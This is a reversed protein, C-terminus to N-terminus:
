KERKRYVRYPIIEQCSERLFSFTAERQEQAERTHPGSFDTEQPFTVIFLGEKRLAGILKRTIALPELTHELCDLSAIVAYHENEFHESGDVTIIRHLLSLMSQRVFTLVTSGIEALDVESYGKRALYHVLVGAGGGYDLIPADFPLSENQIMHYTKLIKKKYEFNRSSLYAQRWMDGDHESYFSEVGEASNRSHKAWLESFGIRSVYYRVLFEMESDLQYYKKVLPVISMAPFVYSTALFLLVHQMYRVKGVFSHYPYASSAKRFGRISPM